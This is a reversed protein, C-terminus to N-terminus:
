PGSRRPAGLAAQEYRPYLHAVNRVYEAPYAAWTRFPAPIDARLVDNADEHDVVLRRIHWYLKEQYKKIIRTFAREKTSADRFQLLLEKDETHTM